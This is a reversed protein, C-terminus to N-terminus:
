DSLCNKAVQNKGPEFINKKNGNKTFIQDYLRRNM